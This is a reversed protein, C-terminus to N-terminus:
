AFLIGQLDWNERECKEVIESLCSHRKLEDRSNGGKETYLVAFVKDPNQSDNSIIRYVLKSEAIKIECLVNGEPITFEIGYIECKM